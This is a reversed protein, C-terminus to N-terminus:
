VAGTNPDCIGHRIAFATLSAVSHLGLKDMMNQRYTEVTRTSLGLKDAIEKSSFAEGIMQLIQRERRSLMNVEASAPGWETAGSSKLTERIRPSLYREGALAARIAAELEGFAAEKLVYGSAGANLAAHVYASDPHMSLMIARTGPSAELILRTTEIGNIEPMSVDVLAVEPRLTRAFRVAMHGNDAEAVIQHGNQSRELLARIGARVMTHDEVLLLNAM